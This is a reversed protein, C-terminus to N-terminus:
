EDQVCVKDFAQKKLHITKDGIDIKDILIKLFPYRVLHGDATQVCHVDAAGYQGIDILTGYKCGDLFVQCGLLDAVYYEFEDCPEDLSKPISVAQNALQEAQTRTDIGKLKAFVARSQKAGDIRISAVEYLRDRLYVQGLTAFRQKDSSAIIKIEGKIGQAKVVKGIELLDM